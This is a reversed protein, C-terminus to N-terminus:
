TKSFFYGKPVADLDEHSKIKEYPIVWKGGCLYDLVWNKEDNVLPNFQESYTENNQIFKLCSSIINKKELERANKALSSLSKQYYEMTDISKVQNGINAYQVNTLNTGGINLQKTRWVFM